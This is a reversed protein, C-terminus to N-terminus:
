IAIIAAAVRREESALINYTRCAARSDMAELAINNEIFRKRIEISPFVQTEGTGLVMIEIQDHVTFVAEFLAPKLQVADAAAFAEVSHPLILISGERRGDSLRFGMDGYAEILRQGAFKIDQLQM